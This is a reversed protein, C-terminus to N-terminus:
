RRGRVNVVRVASVDIAQVSALDERAQALEADLRAVRARAHDVVVAHAGEPTLAGLAWGGVHNRVVVSGNDGHNFEESRVLYPGERDSFEKTYLSYAVTV